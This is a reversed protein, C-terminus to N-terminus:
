PHKELHFFKLDRSENKLFSANLLIAAVDVSDKEHGSWITGGKCKELSLPYDKSESGNLSNFKIFIIKKGKLVHKNTVLWTHYMRDEEKVQLDVAKGVIFGTGIWRREEPNDGVGIAVVTDLFYPPLLAM